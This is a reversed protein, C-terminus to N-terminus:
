LDSDSSDDIYQHYANEFIDLLKTNTLGNQAHQQMLDMLFEYVEDLGNKFEPGQELSLDPFSFGTVPDFLINEPHPDPFIENSYFTELSKFFEPLFSTFSNEFVSFLDKNILLEELTKGPLKEEIVINGKHAYPTAAGPINLEQAKDLSKIEEVASANGRFYIKAVKNPDKGKIVICEGGGGIIAAKEELNLNTKSSPIGISKNHDLKKAISSLTPEFNIAEKEFANQYRLYDTDLFLAKANKFSEALAENEEVSHTKTEILIEEEIKDVIHKRREQISKFSDKYGEEYAYDTVVFGSQIGAQEDNALIISEINIEPKIDLQILEDLTLMLNFFDHNYWQINETDRLFLISHGLEDEKVLVGEEINAAVAKNVGALNNKEVISSALLKAKLREKDETDPTKKLLDVSVSSENSPNDVCFVLSKQTERRYTSLEEKELEEGAKGRHVLLNGLQKQDLAQYAETYKNIIKQKDIM